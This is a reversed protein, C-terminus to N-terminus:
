EASVDVVPAGVIVDLGVFLGVVWLEVGVSAEGM